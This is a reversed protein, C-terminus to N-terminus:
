CNYSPEKKEVDKGVHTIHIRNSSLWESLHSTIDRQPKSKCKEPYNAISLMKEHAWQVNANGRQFFVIVNKQGNKSRTTHNKSTSNQSSNIFTPCM